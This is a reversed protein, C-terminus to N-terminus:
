AIVEFEDSVIAAQRTCNTTDAFVAVGTATIAQASCPSSTTRVIFYQVGAVSPTYVYTTSGSGVTYTQGYVKTADDATIALNMISIDARGISPLLNVNSTNFTTNYYSEYAAKFAVFLSTDEGSSLFAGTSNTKQV